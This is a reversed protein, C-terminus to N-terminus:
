SGCCLIGTIPAPRWILLGTEQISLYGVTVLIGPGIFRLLEKAEKSQKHIQSLKNKFVNLM